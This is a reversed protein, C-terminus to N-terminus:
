QHLGNTGILIGGHMMIAMITILNEEKRTNKIGIGTGTTVGVEVETGTMTMDDGTGIMIMEVEIGIMIMVDETGPVIIM